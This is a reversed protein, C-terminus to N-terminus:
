LLLVPSRPQRPQVAIRLDVRRIRIGHFKKAVVQRWFTQPPKAILEASVIQLGGIAGSCNLLALSSRKSERREFFFNQPAIQRIDKMQDVNERQRLIGN